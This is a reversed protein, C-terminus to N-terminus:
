FVCVCSCVESKGSTAMINRLVGVFRLGNLIHRGNSRISIVGANNTHNAVFDPNQIMWNINPRNQSICDLYFNATPLSVIACGGMEESAQNISPIKLNFLTEGGGYAREFGEKFPRGIVPVTSVENTQMGPWKETTPNAMAAAFNTHNPPPKGGGTPGHGTVYGPASAAAALAATAM